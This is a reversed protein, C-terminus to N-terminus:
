RKNISALDENFDKHFAKTIMIQRDHGRLRLLGQNFTSLAAVTKPISVTIKDETYFIQIRKGSTEVKDNFEEIVALLAEKLPQHPSTIPLVYDIQDPAPSAQTLPFQARIIQEIFQLDYLCGKVDNDFAVHIKFDPTKEIAVIYHLLTKIQQPTLQGGVSFYVSDFRNDGRLLRLQCHSLVDIVSEMIFFHSTKAPPNSVFVSSNRDSGPAHLKITQNRIELGTVRTSQGNYYPFAVNSFQTFQHNPNSKVTPLDVTQSTAADYYTVQTVVKGTFEPRNLTEPTIHRQTLFNDKELPRLDFDAINFLRKPSTVNDALKQEPKSQTPDVRLYDYLVKTINTLSHEDPQNYASFVTTLRNRIFDVITGSDSFDGARQYVQVDAHNPNKIIITDNYGTHELVPRSKGKQRKLEYGWHLALDIISVNARLESIPILNPYRERLQNFKSM